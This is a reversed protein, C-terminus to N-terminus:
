KMNYIEYRDTKNNSVTRQMRSKFKLHIKM